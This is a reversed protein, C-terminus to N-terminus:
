TTKGGAIFEAKSIRQGPPVRRPGAESREAETQEENTMPEFLTFRKQFWTRVYLGACGRRRKEQYWWVEPAAVGVHTQEM